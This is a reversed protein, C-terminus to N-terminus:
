GVLAGLLGMLKGQLNIQNGRRAIAEQEQSARQAEQAQQGKLVQASNAQASNFRLDNEAGMNAANNRGYAAGELEARLPSMSSFGRGSLEQNQRRVAGGTAADSAARTSNVREQIQQGSWIPNADIAPVPATGAGGSDGQQSMSAWQQQAWPFTQEWRQQALTAPYKSAEAQTQAIQQQSRAQVGTQREASAAQVLANRKSAEAQTWAATAADPNYQTNVSVNPGIRRVGGGSWNTSDGFISM